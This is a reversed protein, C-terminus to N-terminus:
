VRLFTFSTLASARAGKKIEVIGLTYTEKDDPGVRRRENKEYEYKERYLKALKLSRRVLERLLAKNYKEDLLAETLEDDSLEILEAVDNLITNNM